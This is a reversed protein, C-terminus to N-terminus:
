IVGEDALKKIQEEDYGLVNCYIEHNHEGLSPGVALPDGPTKSLKFVSGPTKFKGSGPQDIEVIMDRSLLQPDNAVQDFSPLPCCPVHAERLENLIEDVNKTKTWEEILADVEDRHDVRATHSAYKEAGILDDRGMIHLISEWHGFPGVMLIVRGDKAQYDNQPAAYSISTGLRQPIKNEQFYGPSQEIATILWVCDQMSIDIMQGEGTQERYKLAALISITTFSGTLLDAVSSGVKTPLGGPQGTISMMGGMAQAIADFVPEFRRPGTHGYGSSSAYILRPNLKSLEEYSLGLRDMVGPSFNELLVDVKQVLERAIQCGKESKLNLTISKKGRNLNIFISSEGSRTFPPVGRSLDGVEPMEVKIIEAGLERLLSACFPGNLARSFDLVKLGQLAKAM